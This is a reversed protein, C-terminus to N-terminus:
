ATQVSLAACNSGSLPGWRCKARSSPPCSRVLTKRRKCQSIGAEAVSRLSDTPPLLKLAHQLSDLGDDFKGQDGLVLGLAVHAKPYDDKPKIAHRFEAEADALRGKGLLIIGLNYNAEAYDPKLDVARRIEAEAETRKGPVDLVFGLNNHAEAYDPKLELARRLEAESEAWRSQTNSLVSGLSYHFTEDDPKLEVAYRCETEAEALKGQLGLMEGLIAHLEPNRPRIALAARFFAISEDSPSGNAAWDLVVSLQLNIAFDGANKVQALRLM